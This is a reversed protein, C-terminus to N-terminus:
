LFDLCAHHSESRALLANGPLKDELSHCQGLTDVLICQAKELDGCSYCSKALRLSFRLSLDYHSKWHDTPLLSLAFTLYSRSTVHDSCTAAKMGALENLKAIDLRLECNGDEINDIGHKIQDIISFVIDDVAKGKTTSYLSMGLSYHLKQLRFVITIHYTLCHYM